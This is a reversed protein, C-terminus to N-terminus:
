TVLPFLLARSHRKGRTVSSKILKKKQKHSQQLRREVAHFTNRKKEVHYDKARSPRQKHSYNFFLNSFPWLFMTSKQNNSMKLKENFWQINTTSSSSRRTTIGYSSRILRLSSNPHIESLLPPIIHHLLKLEGLFSFETSQLCQFSGLIDCSYCLLPRPGYELLTPSQLVLQRSTSPSFSLKM